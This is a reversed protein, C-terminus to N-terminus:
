NKKTVEDIWDRCLQLACTEADQKTEFILAQTQFRKLELASYPKLVIGISHWGNASDQLAVASIPFKKYHQEM